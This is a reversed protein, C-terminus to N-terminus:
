KEAVAATGFEFDLAAGTRDSRLWFRCTELMKLAETWTKFSELNRRMTEDGTRNQAMLVLSYIAMTNRIAMNAADLDAWGYAFSEHGAVDKNWRAKSSPGAESLKRLTEVNSATLFWGDRALFALRDEPKSSAYIGGASGELIMGPCGGIDIRRPILGWRYRANIRDLLATAITLALDGDRVKFGMVLAPVKFGMLRGSFDDGLVAAFANGQEVAATKFGRGCIKMWEPSSNVLFAKELYLYPAVALVNASDGLIKEIAALDPSSGIDGASHLSFNGSLTGKTHRGAHETIRCSIVVPQQMANRIPPRFWAKDLAASTQEDPRDLLDQLSGALTMKHELRQVVHRVGDVEESICALLLGDYVTISLVSGEDGGVQTYWVTRGSDLKSRQFGTLVKSYVGFGALPCDIGGWSALVWAPRGPGCLSPAYAVVTERPAFKRFLLAMGPDGALKGVRDSKVGLSVMMSMTFPNRAFSEWRAGLREHSSIFIADSPVARFLQERDFPFYFVRWVAVSLMLLASLLILLRRRTM